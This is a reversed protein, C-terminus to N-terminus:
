ETKPDLIKQKNITSSIYYADKTIMNVGEDAYLVKQQVNPCIKKKPKKYSIPKGDNDIL